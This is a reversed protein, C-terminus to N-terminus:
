CSTWIRDMCCKLNNGYIYRNSKHEVQSIRMPESWGEVVGERFKSYKFRGEETGKETQVKNM